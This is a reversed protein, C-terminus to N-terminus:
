KTLCQKTTPMVSFRPLLIRLFFPFVIYLMCFILGLSFLPQRVLSKAKWDTMNLHYKFACYMHFMRNQCDNHSGNQQSAATRKRAHRLGRVPSGCRRGPPVIRLSRLPIGIKLHHVYRGFDVPLWLFGIQVLRGFLSLREDHAQVGPTSVIALAIRQSGFGFRLSIVVNMGVKLSGVRARLGHAAGNGHGVNLFGYLIGHFSRLGVGLLHM